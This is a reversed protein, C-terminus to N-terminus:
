GEEFSEWGAPPPLFDPVPEGNRYARCHEAWLGYHVMDSFPYDRRSLDLDRIWEPMHFGRAVLWDYYRWCWKPMAVHERRIFANVLRRTEIEEGERYFWEHPDDLMSYLM